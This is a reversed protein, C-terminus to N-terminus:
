TLGPKGNWQDGVGLNFLSPQVVQGVLRNVSGTMQREVARLAKEDTGTVDGM